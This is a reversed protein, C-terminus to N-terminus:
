YLYSDERTTEYWFVQLINSPEFGQRRIMRRYIWERRGHTYVTQRIDLEEPM